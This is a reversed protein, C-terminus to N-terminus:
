VQVMRQWLWTSVSSFPSMVIIRYDHGCLLFLLFVLKNGQTGVAAPIGFGVLAAATNAEAGGYVADFGAAQAFRM